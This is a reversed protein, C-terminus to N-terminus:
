AVCRSDCHLVTMAENLIHGTPFSDVLSIVYVVSCLLVLGVVFIAVSKSFGNHLENYNIFLVIDNVPKM